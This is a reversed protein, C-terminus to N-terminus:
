YRRFKRNKGDHARQNLYLSGRVTYGASKLIQLELRLTHHVRPSGCRLHLGKLRELDCPLTDSDAQLYVLVNESRYECNRNLRVAPRLM